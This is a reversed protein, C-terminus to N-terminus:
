ALASGRSVIRVLPDGALIAAGLAGLPPNDVGLLVRSAYDVVAPLFSLRERVANLLPEGADSVGGGIDIGLIM